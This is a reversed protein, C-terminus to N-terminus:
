VIWLSYVVFCLSHFSFAASVLYLVLMFRFFVLFGFFVLFCFWWFFVLFVHVSYASLNCSCIFFVASSRILWYYLYNVSLVFYWGHFVM